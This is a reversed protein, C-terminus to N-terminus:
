SLIEMLKRYNACLTKYWTEDTAEDYRYVRIKTREDQVAVLAVKPNNLSSSAKYDGLLRTVVNSNTGKVFIKYMTEFIDNKLANIALRPYIRRHGCFILVM